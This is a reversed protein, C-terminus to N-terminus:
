FIKFNDESRVTLIKVSNLLPVTNDYPLWHIKTLKEPLTYQSTHQPPAFFHSVM